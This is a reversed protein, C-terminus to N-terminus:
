SVADKVKEKTETKDQKHKKTRRGSPPHAASHNVDETQGEVGELQGFSRTLTYKWHSFYFKYTFQPKIYYNCIIERAHLFFELYMQNLNLNAVFNCNRDFIM